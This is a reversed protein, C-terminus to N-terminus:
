NAAGDSLIWPILRILESRSYEKISPRVPILPRIAAAKADATFPQAPEHTTTRIGKLWTKSSEVTLIENDIKM